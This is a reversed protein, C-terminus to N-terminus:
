SAVAKGGVACGRATGPERGIRSREGSARIRSSQSAIASRIAREGAAGRVVAEGANAAAPGRRDAIERVPEGVGGVAQRGPRTEPQPDLSDTAQM